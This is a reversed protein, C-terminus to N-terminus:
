TLGQQREIEEIESLLDISFGQKPKVPKGAKPKHKGNNKPTDWGPRMAAKYAEEVTLLSQVPATIIPQPTKRRYRGGRRGRRERKTAVQLRQWKPWQRLLKVADDFRYLPIGRKTHIGHLLDHCWECLVVVDTPLEAGLREYTLHHVVRGAKECIKCKRCRGVIM